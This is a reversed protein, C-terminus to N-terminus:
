SAAPEAQDTLVVTEERSVELIGSALNFTKMNEDKDRITLKGPGLSALM